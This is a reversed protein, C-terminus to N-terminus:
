TIFSRVRIKAYFKLHERPTLQDFLVDHQPCIGTMQRIGELQSPDSCNHISTPSALRKNDVYNGLQVKSRARILLRLRWHPKDNRDAHQLTDDERGRQARSYCYNTRRIHEHETRWTSSLSLTHQFSRAYCDVYSVAFLKSQLEELLSFHKLYAKLSSPKEVRWRTMSKRLMKRNMKSPSIKSVNALTSSVNELDGDYARNVEGNAESKTKWHFCFFPSRKSGFEGSNLSIKFYCSWILCILWKSPLVNDLYYTLLAYLVIDLSLM